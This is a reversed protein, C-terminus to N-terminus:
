NSKSLFPIEIVKKKNLWYVVGAVVLLAIGIILNWPTAPKSKETSKNEISTNNNTRANTDLQKENSSNTKGKDVERKKTSTTTISKIAGKKDGSQAQPVNKADNVEPTKTDNAQPTRDGTMPIEDPPYYEIEIKTTELDSAYDNQINTNGLEKLKQNLETNNSQKLSTDTMKKTTKCGTLIVLAIVLIRLLKEM